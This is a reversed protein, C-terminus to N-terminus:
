KTSTVFRQFILSDINYKHCFIKKKSVNNIYNCSEILLFKDDVDFFKQFTAQFKQRGNCNKTDNGYRNVFWILQRSKTIRCLRLLIIFLEEGLLKNNICDSENYRLYKSNIDAVNFLYQLDTNVKFGCWLKKDPLVFDDHNYKEIIIKTNKNTNM